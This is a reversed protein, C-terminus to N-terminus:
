QIKREIWKRSNGKEAMPKENKESATEGNSKAEDEEEREREIM